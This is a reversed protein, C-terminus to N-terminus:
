KDPLMAFSKSPNGMNHSGFLRNYNSIETCNKVNRLKFAFTAVTSLMHIYTLYCTLYQLSRGKTFIPYLSANM